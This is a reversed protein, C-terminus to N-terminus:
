STCPKDYSKVKTMQKSSPAVSADVNTTTQQISKQM